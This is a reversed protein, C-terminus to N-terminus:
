VRMGIVTPRRTIDIKAEVWEVLKATPYSILFYIVAVMTFIEFHKYTASALLQGSFMLDRLTIVSVLASDKFISVFFNGLAPVIIRIAQPLIIRRMLLARSMGVSSGAEWQGKPIAQIGSRFVEAMYAAYNMTLGIVGSVFPSLVIGVYPLVYYIFFLQLLLPTGRIFQIYCAAVGRVPAVRSIRAIGFVLGFLLALAFALLSVAITIVAGQLLSPLFNFVDQLSFYM